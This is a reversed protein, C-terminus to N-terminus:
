LIVELLTKSLPTPPPAPAPALFSLPEVDSGYGGGLPRVEFHKHCGSSAGLSGVDAIWVGKPLVDGANVYVAQVHGIIAEYGTSSGDANLLELTLYYPGYYTEPGGISLVRCPWGAYVPGGCASLGILASDVGAHWRPGSQIDLPHGPYQSLEGANPYPELSVSTSGWEQTVTYGPTWADPIVQYLYSWASM